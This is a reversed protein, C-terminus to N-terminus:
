ADEASVKNLRARVSSLHHLLTYAQKRYSNPLNIDLLKREISDLEARYEELKADPLDARSRRVLDADIEHVRAYHGYVRRRLIAAYLTPLLRMLPLVLLVLPLLVLLVRNLQAVIWYPLFRELTSFGNEFLQEASSDVTVDLNKTSPYARDAPVVRYGGHVEMVAHVLRNVLAPHLDERSLLRTVMAVVEMDGDPLPRRYDIVGSPLRILQAGAVRLAISESHALEVLRLTPNALLPKLYTAQYPAVFLAIDVAGRLLGEAADARSLALSSDASLAEAKTFDNIANAIERTGSGLSGGTVTLGTWANPDNSAESSAFIWLPELRVSAIGRVHEGVSIGSQILAIDPGDEAALRQANELSGETEIIKLSIDDKALIKQYALANDYYASGPLGAAISIEQPPYLNLKRLVYTAGSALSGFLLMGILAVPLVRLLLKM